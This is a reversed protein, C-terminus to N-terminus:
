LVSDAFAKWVCHRIQGISVVVRQCFKLIVFKRSYPRLLLTSHCHCKIKKTSSFVVSTLMTYLQCRVVTFYCCRRTKEGAVILFKHLHIRHLTILIFVASKRRGSECAYLLSSLCLCSRKM